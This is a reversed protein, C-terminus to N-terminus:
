KKTRKAPSGRTGVKKERRELREKTKGTKEPKSM